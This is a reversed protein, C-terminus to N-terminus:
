AASSELALLRRKAEVGGAYDGPTGDARVVRHCPIVIPLPNVRCASGVARAANPHGTAAAVTSYSETAGYRIDCLHRLVDRRFGRALRLDLPLDFVSRRGEFYDNLERAAEDLRGPARLVRPSVQAALDALVAAHDQAAFAVRVLGAETTAVLLSGLPSDVTRYAIDLLGERDAAAVLRAHLRDRTEEDVTTLAGFLDLVSPTSSAINM